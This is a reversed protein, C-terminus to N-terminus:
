FRVSMGGSLGRMGVFAGDFYLSVRNVLSLNFGAALSVHYLDGGIILKDLDANQKWFIPGGFGRVALYPSWADGLTWGVSVDAKFDIAHLGVRAGDSMRRTSTSSGSFTGVVLLFPIQPKTGFYRRAITLSWIVGPQITWTENPAGRLGVIRGGMNPGISAGLVLGKKLVGVFSLAYASQRIRYRGEHFFTLRTDSFGYGLGIAFPRRKEGTATAM